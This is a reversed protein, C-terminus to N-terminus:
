ATFDQAKGLQSVAGFDVGLASRAKASERSVVVGVEACDELGGSNAEYVAEKDAQYHGVALRLGEALTEANGATRREGTM